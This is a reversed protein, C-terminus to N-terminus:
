LKWDDAAMLYWAAQSKHDVNDKWTKVALENREPLLIDFNSFPTQADNVWDNYKKRTAFNGISNVLRWGAWEEADEETAARIKIDRATFDDFRGFEDISPNQFEYDKRMTNRSQDDIEKFFAPLTEDEDDWDDLWGEGDLLRFWADEESFDPSALNNSVKKGKISGKLHLLEKSVNWELMLDLDPHIKEGNAEISRIRLEKDGCCPSENIREAKTIWDPIRGLDRNTESGNDGNSKNLVESIATPEAFPEVKLISVPLLPDNSFWVTWTGEKPIFVQKTELVRAGEETLIYKHGSKETMQYFETVKLLREAVVKRSKAESFLHAAIDGADTGGTEDLRMLVPMLDPREEAFAITAQIRWCEVNVPRTLILDNKM